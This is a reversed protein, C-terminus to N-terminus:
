GFQIRCGDAVAIVLTMTQRERGTKEYVEDAPMKVVPFRQLIRVVLYAAETLAFDM